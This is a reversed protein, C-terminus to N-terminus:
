ACGATLHYIPTKKAAPLTAGRVLVRPRVRYMAWPNFALELVESPRLARSWMAAQLCTARLYISPLNARSFLTHPYGNGNFFQSPISTNQQAIQKGDFYLRVAVSPDYTAVVHNSRPSSPSITQYIHYASNYDTAWAAYMVQSPGYQIGSARATGYGLKGILLSDNGGTMDLDGYWLLTHAGSFRLLPYDSHAQAYDNVGDGWLGPGDPRLRWSQSLDMNFTRAHHQYGSVDWITTGGQELMPWACVLGEWLHPAESNAGRAEAVEWIEDMSPIRM